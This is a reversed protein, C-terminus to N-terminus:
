TNACDDDCLHCATAISSTVLGYGLVTDHHLLDRPGLAVGTFLHPAQVAM